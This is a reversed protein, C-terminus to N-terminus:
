FQENMNKLTVKVETKERGDRIISLTVTDGSKHKSIESALAEVDKVATGDIATIIDSRVLGAKEAASNDM